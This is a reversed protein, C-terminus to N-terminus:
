YLFYPKRYFVDYTNDSPDYVQVYWKDSGDPEPRAKFVLKNGYYSAYEKAFGEAKREAETQNM